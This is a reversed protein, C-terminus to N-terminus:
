IAMKAMQAYCSVDTIQLFAVNSHIKFICGCFFHFECRNLYVHFMDRIKLKPRKLLDHFLVTKDVEKSQIFDDISCLISM